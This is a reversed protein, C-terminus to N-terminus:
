RKTLRARLKDRLSEPSTVASSNGAASPPPKPAGFPKGTKAEFDKKFTELAEDASKLVDDEKESREVMRKYAEPLVHYKERGLVDSAVKAKMLEATQITYNSIKGNLEAIVIQAKELESKNANERDQKEKELQEAKTKLTDFDAYQSKVKALERAVIAAVQQDHESQTYVRNTEKGKDTETTSVTSDDGM